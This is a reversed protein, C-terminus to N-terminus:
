FKLVDALDDKTALRGEVVDRVGDLVGEPVEQDESENEDDCSTTGM